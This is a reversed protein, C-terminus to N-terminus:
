EKLFNCGELNIRGYKDQQKFLPRIYDVAKWIVWISPTKGYHILTKNCWTNIKKLKQIDLDNPLDFYEEHKDSIFKLMRGLKKDCLSKELKQELAVIMAKLKQELALRIFFIRKIIVTKYGKVELSESGICVNFFDQPKIEPRDISGIESSIKKEINKLSKNKLNKNNSIDSVLELIDFIVSQTLEMMSLKKQILDYWVLYSEIEIQKIVWDICIFHTAFYRDTNEGIKKFDIEFILSEDYLEEIDKRYSDIIKRICVFKELNFKINKYSAKDLEEQLLRVDDM